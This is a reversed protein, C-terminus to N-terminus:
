QSVVSGPAPAERYLMRHETVSQTGDSATVSAVIPQGPANRELTLTITENVKRTTKVITAQSTHNALRDLLTDDYATASRLDVIANMADEALESREEAAASGHLSNLVAASVALLVAVTLASAILVELLSFGRESRRM